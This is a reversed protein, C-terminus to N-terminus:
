TEPNLIGIYPLNRLKENYDLGYGVVFHDDINFGIWNANIDVERKSPKNLLSVTKISLPNREKCFSILKEFTHGTDIIEDVLLVHFGEFNHDHLTKIVPVGTSVKDVYSKSRIFDVEYNPSLKRVLDAMFIFSGKLVGLILLPQERYYANIEVGMEIIRQNLQDASILTEVQNLLPSIRAM